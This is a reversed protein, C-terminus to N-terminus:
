AGGGIYMVDDVADATSRVGSITIGGRKELLARIISRMEEQARREKENKKKIKLHSTHLAIHECWWFLSTGRCREISPEGMRRESRTTEKKERMQLMKCLNESIVSALTRKPINRTAMRSM